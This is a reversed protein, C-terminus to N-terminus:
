VFTRAISLGCKVSIIFVLARARARARAACNLQANGNLEMPPKVPAGGMAAGAITSVGALLTSGFGRM